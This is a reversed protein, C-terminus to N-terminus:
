EINKKLMESGQIRIRLIQEKEKRVKAEHAKAEEQQAVQSTIYATDVAAKGTQGFQAQPPCFQALRQRIGRAAPHAM